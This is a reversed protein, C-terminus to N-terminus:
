RINVGLAAALAQVLERASSPSHRAPHSAPVICWADNPLTIVADISPNPEAFVGPLPRARMVPAPEAVMARMPPAASVVTDYRMQQRARADLIRAAVFGVLTEEDAGRMADRAEALTVLGLSGALRAGVAQWVHRVGYRASSTRGAPEDLIDKRRYYHVTNVSFEAGVAADIGVADFCARVLRALDDADLPAHADRIASARWAELEAVIRREAEVREPSLVNGRTYRAIPKASSRSNAM